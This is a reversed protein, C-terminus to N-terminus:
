KEVGKYNMSRDIDWGYRYLRSFLTNYPIGVLRAWEAVTKEQGLYKVIRNSRTNNMQEIDTGWRCNDPNYNGNVDIRDITLDESYGNNLAWDKFTQYNDKWENCITIGRGGYYPFAIDNKNLCRDRMHAWIRYLRSHSDGHTTSIAQINEKRFCGCSITHNSTLKNARVRVENGCECKCLYMSYRNGGSTIHDDCRKIVTLKGFTKGTLDKKDAM